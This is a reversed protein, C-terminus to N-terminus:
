TNISILNKTKVLRLLSGYQAPNIIIFFNYFCDNKPTVLVDPVCIHFLISIEGEELM